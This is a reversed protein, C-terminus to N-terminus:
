KKIFSINRSPVKKRTTPIVSKRIIINLKKLFCLYLKPTIANQIYTRINPETSKKWNFWDIEATAAM